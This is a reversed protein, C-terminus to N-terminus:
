LRRKTRLAKLATERDPYLNLFKHLGLLKILHSIKDWVSCLAFAGGRRSCARNYQFFLGFCTSNVYSLGTCDLLVLPQEEECLHGVISQFDSVNSADIAGELDVVKIDNVEKLKIDLQGKPM